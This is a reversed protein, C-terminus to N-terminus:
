SYGRRESLCHLYKNVFTTIKVAREKGGRRPSVCSIVLPRPCLARPAYVSTPFMQLRPMSMGLTCRRGLLSTHVRKYVITYLRTCMQTCVHISGRELYTRPLAKLISEESGVGLPKQSVALARLSVFPCGWLCGLSCFMFFLYAGATRGLRVRKALIRGASWDRPEGAEVVFCM